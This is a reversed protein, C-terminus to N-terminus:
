FTVIRHRSSICRRIEAEYNPNMVCVLSRGGSNFDSEKPSLVRKGSVPLFLGQKEHNIDVAYDIEANEREMRLAFVVGKAGAGWVVVPGSEEERWAKIMEAATGIGDDMGDCDAISIPMRAVTDTEVLDRLDAFVSLYQGGFTKRVTACGRFFRQFDSARFYNVHEYFVDFWSKNDVIWEFCPVEIYIRGCGQNARKISAIFGYPDRVHELVHRLVFGDYSLHNSPDFHIKEVFPDEGTYTPDMGSVSVGRERLLKLFTGKGCGIECVTQDRFEEAIELAVEDLHAKFRGSAGQENNYFEDYVVRGEEFEANVIVGSSPDAVLTVNAIACDIAESRDKYLRNQLVPLGTVRYIYEPKAIM